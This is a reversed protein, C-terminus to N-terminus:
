RRARPRSSRAAFSGGTNRGRPSAPMSRWSSSPSPSRSAPSTRRSGASCRTAGCRRISSCRGPVSAPASRRCSRAARWSPPARQCRSAYANANLAQFTRPLVGLVPDDVGAATLETEYFGALQGGPLPGVEAGLVRALTQAGLCVAFLPTGDDLWRQLAAYEDHLWPHRVEEGVNQDGGFVLVADYGDLPPRGRTGIEWERLEHGAEVVVDGFLEPRVLPGHTVALVRM